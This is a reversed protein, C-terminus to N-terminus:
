GLIQLEIGVLATVITAHTHVSNHEYLIEFYYTYKKYSSLFTTNNTFNETQLHMSESLLQFWNRM